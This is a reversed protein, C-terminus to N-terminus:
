KLYTCFRQQLPRDPPRWTEPGASWGRHASAPWDVEYSPGPGLVPHLWASDDPDKAPLVPIGIADCELAVGTGCDHGAGPEPPCHPCDHAAVPPEPAPEHGMVGHHSARTEPGAVGAVCPQMALGLWSVAFLVTIARAIRVQRHRLAQLLGM